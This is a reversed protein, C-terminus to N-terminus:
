DTGVSPPDPLDSVARILESPLLKEVAKAGLTDYLDGLRDFVGADRMRQNRAEWAQKFDKPSM